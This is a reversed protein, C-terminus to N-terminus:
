LGENKGDEKVRRAGASIASNLLRYPILARRNVFNVFETDSIGLKGDMDWEVEILKEQLHSFSMSIVRQAIKRSPDKLLKKPLKTMTERSFM